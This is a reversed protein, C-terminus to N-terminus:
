IISHSDFSDASIDIFTMLQLVNTTKPMRASSEQVKQFTASAKTGNSGKM